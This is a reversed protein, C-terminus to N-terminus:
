SMLPGIGPEAEHGAGDEGDRDGGEAGSAALPLQGGEARCREACEAARHDKEDDPEAEQTAREEAGEVGCEGRGCEEGQDARRGAQGDPRGRVM